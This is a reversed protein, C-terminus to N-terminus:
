SPRPAPLSWPGAVGHTQWTDAMHRGHTQWSDAMHRGHTQWTDAMHRGHTQWTDAMHRGHTQWTDAMHRGHTNWQLSSWTRNVMLEPRCITICGPVSATMEKTWRTLEKFILPWEALALMDVEHGHGSPFVEHQIGPFGQLNHIEYMQVVVPCKMAKMAALRDTKVHKKVLTDKSMCEFVVPHLLSDQVGHGGADLSAARKAPLTYVRGHEMVAHLYDVKLAHLFTMKEKADFGFADVSKEYRVIDRLNQFDDLSAVGTRYISSRVQEMSRKVPTLRRSVAIDNQLVSKWSQLYLCMDAQEHEGLNDYLELHEKLRMSAFWWSPKSGPSTKVVHSLDRHPAEQTTDDIICLQYALVESALTKSMGHGQAHREMDPRLSGKEHGCLYESVRHICRARVVDRTAADYKALMEQAVKADHAQWVLYPLEHVWHLKMELRAIVRSMAAHVLDLKVSAFATQKLSDRDAAIADQVFHLKNALEPARCGKWPCKVPPPAHGDQCQLQQDHCACGSVWESFSMVHGLIAKLARAQDWFEPSAALVSLEAALPKSMVLQKAPDKLRPILFRVVDEIRLVDRICTQLTTWRWDAFSSTATQLSRMMDVSGHGEHGLSCLLKGVLDRHGQGHFYQVLRKASSQWTPWFDIDSLADRIIWDLIHKIGPVQLAYPYLFTGPLQGSCDELCAQANAIQFETGMDSLVQRVSGLARAMRDPTPGYDLWTQHVQTLTKDRVGARGHGLCCVPLTRQMVPISKMDLLCRDTLNAHEVVRECTVFVEQSQSKQPSADCVLYRNIQGAAQSWRRHRIMAAVDFKVRARCLTDKAPDRHGSKDIMKVVRKFNRPHLYRISAATVKKMHSQSKFHISVRLANVLHSMTYSREVPGRTRYQATAEVEAELASGVHPVASDACADKRFQQLTRRSPRISASWDNDGESSRPVIATIDFSILGRAIASTMVHTAAWLHISDEDQPCGWEHLLAATDSYRAGTRTDTILSGDIATLADAVNLKLPRAPHMTPVHKPCELYAADLMKHYLFKIGGSRRHKLRLAEEMAGALAVHGSTPSIRSTSWSIM